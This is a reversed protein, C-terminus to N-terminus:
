TSNFIATLVTKKREWTVPDPATESIGEFSYKTENVPWAPMPELFNSPYPYNTMAMYAYGNLFHEYIDEIDTTNEIPSCLNLWETFNAWEDETSNFLYDWGEKM